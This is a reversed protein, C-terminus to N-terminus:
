AAEAVPIGEFLREGVRVLVNSNALRRVFIGQVLVHSGLMITCLMTRIGWHSQANRFITASNRVICPIKADAHWIRSFGGDM